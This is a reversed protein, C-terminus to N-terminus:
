SPVHNFLLVMSIIGVFAIVLGPHLATANSSLKIFHEVFFIILLTAITNMLYKDINQDEVLEDPLHTEIRKTFAPRGVFMLLFLSFQYIFFATIFVEVVEIIELKTEVPLNPSRAIDLILLLVKRGGHIVVIVFLVLSLMSMLYVFVLGVWWLLAAVGETRGRLASLVDSRDANRVRRLQSSMIMELRSRIDELRTIMAQYSSTM